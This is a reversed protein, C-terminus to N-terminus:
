SQSMGAYRINDDVFTLGTRTILYDSPDCGLEDLLEEPRGTQNPGAKLTLRLEAPLFTSDIRLILPRLDYEKNRRVRIIRDRSLLADVKRIFLQHTNETFAITYDCSSIRSMLTPSNAPIAHISHIFLGDPMKTQLSFFQNGMLDENFWIDVIEAESLYGLPLPFASQIKPQPHFGLTYSLPLMARRLSREWIKMVDIVGIFRLFGRIAYIFRYRSM